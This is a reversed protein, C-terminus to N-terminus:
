LYVLLGDEIGYLSVVLISMGKREHGIGPTCYVAISEASPMAKHM